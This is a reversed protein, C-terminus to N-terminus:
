WDESMPGTEEFALPGFQICNAAPTTAHFTGNYKASYQKPSKFRLNGIPPEAYPIGLFQTASSSSCKGGQINGNSNAVSLLGQGLVKPIIAILFLHLSHM